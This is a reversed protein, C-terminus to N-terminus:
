WHYRCPAAPFNRAYLYHEKEIREMELYHLKQHLAQEELTYDLSSLIVNRWQELKQILYTLDHYFHQCRSHRTLDRDILSALIKQLDALDNDINYLANHLPALDPYQKAITELKSDGYYTAAPVRNGLLQLKAILSGRYNNLYNYKMYVDNVGREAWELIEQDSWTFAGCAAAIGCGVATIGAAIGISILDDTEIYIRGADLHHNNVCITCALFGLIMKYQKM